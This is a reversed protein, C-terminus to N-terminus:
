KKPVLVLDFVGQTQGDEPYHQTVLTKFGQASVRLHIHPPRGYYGSPFDSQFQYAASRGTKITARYADRYEGDPDAMWIEIKSYPIPECTAASVVIGILSYGSGVQRRRTAGPKYFPGLADPPTPSCKWQVNAIQQAPADSQAGGSPVNWVTFVTLLFVSVGQRISKGSIITM